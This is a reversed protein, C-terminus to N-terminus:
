GGGYEIGTSVEFLLIQLIFVYLLVVIHIANRDNMNNRCLTVVM